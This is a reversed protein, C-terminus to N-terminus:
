WIKSRALRKRDADKKLDEVTANARRARERTAHAEKQAPSLVRASITCNTLAQLAKTQARRAKERAARTAKQAPTAPSLVRVAVKGDARAKKKRAADKARQDNTPPLRPM